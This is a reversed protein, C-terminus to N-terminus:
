VFILDHVLKLHIPDKLPQKLFLFFFYLSSFLFSAITERIKLALYKEFPSKIPTDM